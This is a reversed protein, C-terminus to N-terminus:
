ACILATSVPQRLMRFSSLAHASSWALSGCTLPPRYWSISAVYWLISPFVFSTSERRLTAFKQVQWLTGLVISLQREATSEQCIHSYPVWCWASTQNLHNPENQSGSPAYSQMQLRATMVQVESLARFTRFIDDVLCHSPRRRQYALSRQLCSSVPWWTFIAKIRSM